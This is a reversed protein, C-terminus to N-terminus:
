GECRQRRYKDENIDVDVCQAYTIKCARDSILSLNMKQKKATIIVNCFNVTFFHLDIFFYM